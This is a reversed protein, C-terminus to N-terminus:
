TKKINFRIIAQKERLSITVEKKDLSHIIRTFDIDETAEKHNAAPEHTSHGTALNGIFLRIAENLFDESVPIEGTVSLGKMEQLDNELIKSIIANM